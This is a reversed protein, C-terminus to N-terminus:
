FHLKAIPGITSNLISAFHKRLNAQIDSAAVLTINHGTLIHISHDVFFLAASDEGVGALFNNNILFTLRPDDFLNRNFFVGWINPMFVPNENTSIMMLVPNFIMLCSVEDVEVFVITGEAPDKTKLNMDSRRHLDLELIDAHFM